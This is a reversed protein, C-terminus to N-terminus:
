ADVDTTVAIDKQADLAALRDVLAARISTYATSGLTLRKPTPARDVSAIMARAMRLPDGTLALMRNALARRMEGAPTAEYDAM